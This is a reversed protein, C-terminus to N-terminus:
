ILFSTAKAIIKSADTGHMSGFVGDDLQCLDAAFALRNMDNAFFKVVDRGNPTRMMVGNYVVGRYKFPHALPLTESPWNEGADFDVIKAEPAPAAGADALAGIFGTNEAAM